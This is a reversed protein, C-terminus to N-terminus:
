KSCHQKGKNNPEADIEVLFKHALQGNFGPEEFLLLLLHVVDEHTLGVTDDYVAALFLFIVLFGSWFFDLDFKEIVRNFINYVNVTVRKLGVVFTDLIAWFIHPM